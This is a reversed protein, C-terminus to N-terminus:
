GDSTDVLLGNEIEFPGMVVTEKIVQVVADTLKLHKIYNMEDDYATVMKIAIHQGYKDDVLEVKKLRLIM